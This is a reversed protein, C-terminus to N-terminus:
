TVHAHGHPRDSISGLSWMRVSHGLNRGRWGYTFEEGEVGRCKGEPVWPVGMFESNNFLVTVGCVKGVMRSDEM